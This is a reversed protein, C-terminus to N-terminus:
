FRRTLQVMPEADFFRDDDPLLPAVIAVRLLMDPTLEFNLGATLNLLSYHGRRNSLVVRRDGAAVPVLPGFAVNDTSDLTTTFHLELLGALGTMWSRRANRFLWYGAGTNIHLLAQDNLTGASGAIGTTRLDNGDTPVDLQMFANLFLDEGDDALAALYPHLHVADNEITYFFSGVRAQSDDGTPLEIGL